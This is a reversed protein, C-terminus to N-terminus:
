GANEALIPTMAKAIEGLGPELELKGALVRDWIPQVTDLAKTTQPLYLVDGSGYQELSPLIKDAGDPAFESETYYKWASSRAPSGRGTRAWMFNQGAESIYENLYIWAADKQESTQAIAYGSGDRRHPAEESRGAM